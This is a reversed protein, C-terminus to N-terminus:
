RRSHRPTRDAPVPKGSQAIPCHPRRKKLDFAKVCAEYEPCDKCKM